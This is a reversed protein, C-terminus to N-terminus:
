KTGKPKLVRGALDVGFRAAHKQATPTGFRRIFKIIENERAEQSTYTKRPNFPSQSDSNSDAVPKKGDPDPKVGPKTTGRTTGYQAAEADMAATALKDSGLAARLVKFRDGQKTLSGSTWTDDAQDIQVAPVAGFPRDLAYKSVWEEVTFPPQGPEATLVGGDTDIVVHGNAVMQSAIEGIENVFSPQLRPNEMSRAANIAMRVFDPYNITPAMNPFDKYHYAHASKITQVAWPDLLL